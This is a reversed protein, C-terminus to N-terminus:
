VMGYLGPSQSKTTSVLNEFIKPCINQNMFDGVTIFLIILSLKKDWFQISLNEDFTQLFFYRVVWLM